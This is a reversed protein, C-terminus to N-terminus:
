ADSPGGPKKLRHPMHKKMFVGMVKHDFLAAKVGRAAPDNLIFLMMQQFTRNHTGTVQHSARVPPEAKEPHGLESAAPTTRAMMTSMPIGEESCEEADGLDVAPDYDADTEWNRRWNRGPKFCTGGGGLGGCPPCRFFCGHTSDPDSSGPGIGDCMAECFWNCPTPM